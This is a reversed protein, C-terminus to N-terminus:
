IKAEGNAVGIKFSKSCIKLSDFYYIEYLREYERIM